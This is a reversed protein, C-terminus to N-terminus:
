APTVLGGANRPCKASVGWSHSIIIRGRLCPSRHLQQLRHLATAVWTAPLPRTPSRQGNTQPHKLTCWHGSVLWRSVALLALALVAAKFSLGIVARPCLCEQWGIGSVVPLM